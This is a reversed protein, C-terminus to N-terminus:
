AVIAIGRADEVVEAHLLKAQQRVVRDLDVLQAAEADVDELAHRQDDLRGVLSYGYKLPFAFSGEMYPCRMTDRVGAPVCGTAVLRETGPSIASAIATIRRWGDGRDIFPEDRIAARSPAEFWLARATM